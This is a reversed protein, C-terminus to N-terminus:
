AEIYAMAQNVSSFDIINQGHRTRNGVLVFNIGLEECAERDWVGDGFYTCAADEHKSLKARALKMIETRRFHDDSSFICEKSYHFGAADLKLVATEFWGGTAFSVAVNDLSALYNLFSRAGPVEEVPNNEIHRSIERIFCNKVQSQIEEAKEYLGHRGIVERLIGADTIHRYHSLDRDMEIGAVKEVTAAYIEEDFDYSQVLTGDIDFMVHHM